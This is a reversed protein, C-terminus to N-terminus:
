LMVFPLVVFALFGADAHCTQSAPIVARGKRSDQSEFFPDIYRRLAVASNNQNSRWWQNFPVPTQLYKEITNRFQIGHGHLLHIPKLQEIKPPWIIHNVHDTEKHQQITCAIQDNNERCFATLAHALTTGGTKPVHAFAVLLRHPAGANFYDSIQEGRIIDRLIPNPRLICPHTDTRRNDRGCWSSPVALAVAVLPLV